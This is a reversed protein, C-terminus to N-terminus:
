VGGWWPLSRFTRRTKTGIQEIWAKRIGDFGEDVLACECTAEGLRSSTPEPCLLDLAVNRKLFDLLQDGLVSGTCGDQFQGLRVPDM